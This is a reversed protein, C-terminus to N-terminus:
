VLPARQRLPRAGLTSDNWIAHDWQGPLRLSLGLGLADNATGQQYDRGFPEFGGSWYATGDSNLALVPTGLHDTVLFRTAATGADIRVAQAVPRGAFYFFATRTLAARDDEHLLGHLVGESSYTAELTQAPKGPEGAAVTSLFGRGDYSHDAVDDNDRTITSLRGGADITLDISNADATINVANGAADYAYARDKGGASISM